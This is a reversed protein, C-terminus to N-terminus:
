KEKLYIILESRSKLELKDLIRSVYNKVTGETLFLTASITKNSKGQMIQEVVEIERPTLIKSLDKKEATPAQPSEPVNRLASILKSTVDSHLLLTGEHAAKIAKIIEKLDSDKLIFGDAGNKLGNFIYEDENFTTLIIVKVNPYKEKVAKTAEIGNMVPMRIDMLIVNPTMRELFVLLEEGNTAEGIIRIEENLSLLMKLGDRVIGQDDVIIVDM